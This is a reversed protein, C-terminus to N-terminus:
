MLINLQDVIWMKMLFRPRVQKMPHTGLNALPKPKRRRVPPITSLDLVPTLVSPLTPHTRCQPVWLQFFTHTESIM